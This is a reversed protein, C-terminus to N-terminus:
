KVASSEATVVGVLERTHLMYIAFIVARPIEIGYPAWTLRTYDSMYGAIAKLPMGLTIAFIYWELGMMMSYSTQGDFMCDGFAPSLLNKLGQIGIGKQMKEDLVKAWAEPSQIQGQEVLKRRIDMMPLAIEAQYSTTCKFYGKFPGHNIRGGQSEHEIGAAVAFAGTATGRGNGGSMVPSIHTNDESGRLVLETIGGIRCLSEIRKVDIGISGQPLQPIGLRVNIVGSEVQELPILETHPYKAM